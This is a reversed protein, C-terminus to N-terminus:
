LRNIMSAAYGAGFGNDINVVLVGPACSNLMTLLPAIGGFSAGYGTSAPVAIVTQSMAGGVVSPLVGDMGAVVIIVRSKELEKKGDFFRHLGAVGVDYMRRTKNGMIELVAAAEEAVAIDATGGTLVPVALNNKAPLPKGVSIVKGDRSYNHEPISSKIKKYTEEPVRTILVRESSKYIRNAIEIIQQPTKGKGYVVEPFGKRVTRHHDIKVYDLDVFSAEKIKEVAERENFKGSKIDSILKKIKEENV